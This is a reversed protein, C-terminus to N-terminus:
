WACRLIFRGNEPTACNIGCMEVSMLASAFFGTRTMVGVFAVGVSVMAIWPPLREIGAARVSRERATSRVPPLSLRYV